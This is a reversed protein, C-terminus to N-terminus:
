GQPQLATTQNGVVLLTIREQEMYRQSIQNAAHVASSAHSMADKPDFNAANLPTHHLSQLAHHCMSRSSSRAETHNGARIAHRRAKEYADSAKLQMLGATAHLESLAFEQELALLHADSHTHESKLIALRRSAHETARVRHLHMAHMHTNYGPHTYNQFPRVSPAVVEQWHNAILSHADAVNHHANSARLAAHRAVQM